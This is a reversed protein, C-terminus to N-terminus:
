LKISQFYPNKLQNQARLQYIEKEFTISDAADLVPLNTFFKKLDKAALTPKDLTKKYKTAAKAERKKFFRLSFRSGLKLLKQNQKKLWTPM